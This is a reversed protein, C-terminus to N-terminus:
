MHREFDMRAHLIRVIDIGAATKRYFLVHSGCRLKFYGARIDDCARGLHPNGAAAKIAAEIQRVYYEAQETGWNIATYDWIDDIDGIARPSLVFSNM